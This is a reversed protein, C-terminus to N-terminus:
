ASALFLSSFGSAPYIARAPEAGCLLTFPGLGDLLEDLMVYLQMRALGAGPCVHIGAGYLLNQGQDRGLQFQEAEDFVAEDRNASAWM